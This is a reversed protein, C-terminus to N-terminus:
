DDIVVAVKTKSVPNESVICDLLKLWLVRGNLFLELNDMSAASHIGPEHVSKRSSIDKHSHAQARIIARMSSQRRGYFAGATYHHGAKKQFM